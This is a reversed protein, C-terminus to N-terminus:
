LWLESVMFPSQEDTHLDLTHVDLTHVDLTHVDLTHVDLTQLDLATTSGPPLPHISPGGRRAGPGIRVAEPPQHAGILLDDLSRVAQQPDQNSSM